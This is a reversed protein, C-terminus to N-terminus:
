EKSKRLSSLRKAITKKKAAKKKTVKKTTPVGQPPTPDETTVRVPVAEAFGGLAELKKILKPDSVEVPQGKPFTVGWLTFADDLDTKAPHGEPLGTWVWASM